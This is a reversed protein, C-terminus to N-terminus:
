HRFGRVVVEREAGVLGHKADSRYRPSSCPRRRRPRSRLPLTQDLPPVVSRDTRKSRLQRFPSVSTRRTRVARWFRNTHNVDVISAGFTTSGCKTWEAPPAFPLPRVPLDVELRPSGREDPRLSRHGAAEGHATSGISPDAQTAGQPPCASVSATRSRRSCPSGRNGGPRSRKSGPGAPREKVRPSPCATRGPSPSITPLPM